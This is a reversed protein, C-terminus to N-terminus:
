EIFSFCLKRLHLGKTKVPHLSKVGSCWNIVKATKLENKM